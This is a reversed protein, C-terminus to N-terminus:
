DLAAYWFLTVADKVLDHNSTQRLDLGTLDFGAKILFNAAPFNNSLTRVLVARLERERAAQIARFLLGSGIGQRRFDSDIRLDILELVGNAPRPQALLAGIIANDHQAVLAVGEDIGSVVQKISFLREDDLQNADMIKRRLDRIDITWSISLGQGANHVHLYHSSEIIGDLEIVDPLDATTMTRLEM